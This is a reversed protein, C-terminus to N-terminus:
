MCGQYKWLVNGLGGSGPLGSRCKWPPNQRKSDCAHWSMSDTVLSTVDESNKQFTFFLAPLPRKPHTRPKKEQRSDM